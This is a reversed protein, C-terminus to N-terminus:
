RAAGEQGQTTVAASQPATAPRAAFRALHERVRALAAAEELSDGVVLVAMLPDGEHIPLLRARVTTREDELMLTVPLGVEGEAPVRERRYVAFVQTKDALEGAPEIRYDASNTVVQEIEWRRLLGPIRVFEELPDLEMTLDLEMTQLQKM